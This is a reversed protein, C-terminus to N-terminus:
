NVRPFFPKQPNLPIILKPHQLNSTRLTFTSLTTILSKKNNKLLKWFKKLFRCFWLFFDHYIGAYEISKEVQISIVMSMTIITVMIAVISM